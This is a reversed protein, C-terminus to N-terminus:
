TNSARKVTEASVTIIAQENENGCIKLKTTCCNGQIYRKKEKENESSVIEKM